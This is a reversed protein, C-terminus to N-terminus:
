LDIRDGQRPVQVHAIGFEKALHAGFALAGEEEGHVVFAHAPKKAMCGVWEDLEEQDAHGSFGTLERIRCRVPFPEGHIFVTDTGQLLLRGLTHPAQWGTILLVTEEKMIRNRLHHLIRGHEIMGSSAIIIAPGSLDNLRQSDQVSRTYRLARFSFPNGPRHLAELTEEDYTEPHLRFVGTVDTALPSDVFVPMGPIAGRDHLRHLAVVLQQTRGVAFAPILVVSRAAHAELIIHELEAESEPYPPHHRGAYTSEILLIDAGEVPLEPDRIIPIDRRGIDGSFLLTRPPGGEETIELWVHASGLMHGADTFRLRIGPAIQRWRGYVLGRFLTMTERADEPTYLPEFPARGQRRRVKNVFAVDGVQIHASDQLMLTCLDRTAPTAWIEGAYGDKVLSPLNGSHDIHAHSLVIIDPHGGPLPRRNEAFADKRKGQMLGCDLLIRRGCAEILHRSGTVTRAAGHFSIRM